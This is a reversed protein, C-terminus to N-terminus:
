QKILNCHLCTTAVFMADYRAMKGVRRRLKGQILSMVASEIAGRRRGRRREDIDLSLDFM